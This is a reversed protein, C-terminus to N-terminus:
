PTIITFYRMKKQSTPYLTMRRTVRNYEGLYNEAWSGDIVFKNIKSEDQYGAYKEDSFFSISWEEGWNPYCEKITKQLSFLISEAKQRTSIQDPKVQVFLRKTREDTRVIQASKVKLCAGKEQTEGPVQALMLLLLLGVTKM